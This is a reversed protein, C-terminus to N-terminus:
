IGFEKMLLDTSIEMLYISSIIGFLMLGCIFIFRVFGFFKDSKIIKFIYSGIFYALISDYMFIISFSIIVANILNM